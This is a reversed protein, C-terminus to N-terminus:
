DNNGLVQFIIVHFISAIVECPHMTVLCSAVPVLQKLPFETLLYSVFEESHSCNLIPTTQGSFHHFKEKQFYELSLKVLGMIFWALASSEISPQVLYDGFTGEWKSM